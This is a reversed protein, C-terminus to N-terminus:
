PKELQHKTRESLPVPLFAKHDNLIGATEKTDVGEDGHQKVRLDGHRAFGSLALARRPEQLRTEGASRPSSPLLATGPSRTGPRPPSRSGASRGARGAPCGAEPPSPLSSDM